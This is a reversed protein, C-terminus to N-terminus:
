SKLYCSICSVAGSGHCGFIKLGQASNDALLNSDDALLDGGDLLAQSAFDSGNLLADSMGRGMVERVQSVFEDGAEFAGIAPELAELELHMGDDKLRGAQVLGKGLGFALIAGGGTVNAACCLAM